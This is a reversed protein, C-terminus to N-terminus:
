SFAVAMPAPWTTPRVSITSASAMIATIITLGPPRKGFRSTPWMRVRARRLFSVTAHAPLGGVTGEVVGVCLCRVVDHEIRLRGRQEDNVDLVGIEVRLVRRFLGGAPLGE